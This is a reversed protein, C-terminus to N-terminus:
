ACEYKQGLTILTEVEELIGRTTDNARLRAFSAKIENLAEMTSLGELRDWGLDACFAAVKKELLKTNPATETATM